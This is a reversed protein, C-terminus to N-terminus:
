NSQNKTHPINRNATLPNTLCSLPQREVCVQRKEEDKKAYIAEYNEDSWEPIDYDNLFENLQSMVFSEVFVLLDAICFEPHLAIYSNTAYLINKGAFELKSFIEEDLYESFNSRFTEVYLERLMREAEYTRWFEFLIYNARFTTRLSQLLEKQFITFQKYPFSMQRQNFHTSPKM